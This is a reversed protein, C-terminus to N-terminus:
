KGHGCGPRSPGISTRTTPPRPMLPLQAGCAAPKRCIDATAILHTLFTSNLRPPERSPIRSWPAAQVVPVLAVGAPRGGHPATTRPRSQETTAQCPDTENRSSVDREDQRALTMGTPALQHRTATSRPNLNNILERLTASKEANDATRSSVPRTGFRPSRSGRQECAELLRADSPCAAKTHSMSAPTIMQLLWIFETKSTGGRRQCAARRKGPQDLPATPGTSASVGEGSARSGPPAGYRDFIAHAGACGGGHEPDLLGAHTRRRSPLGTRAWPM